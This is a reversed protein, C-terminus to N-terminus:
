VIVIYSEYPSPQLEPEESVIASQRQLSVLPSFIHQTAGRDTSTDQSASIMRQASIPNRCRVGSGSILAPGRVCATMMM